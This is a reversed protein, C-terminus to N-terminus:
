SLLQQLRKQQSRTLSRRTKAIDLAVKSAERYLRGEGRGRRRLASLHAAITAADGRVVPGTLAQEPGSREAERIASSALQLLSRRLQASSKRRLLRLAMAVQLVAFNSAFVCAAHYLIKEEKPLIVLEGKFASVIRRSIPLAKRPGEFAFVLGDFRRLDERTCARRPFTSIPHLSFALDGRRVLPALVDSTHLGSTHFVARQRLPAPAEAAILRAIPAIERDPTAIILVDVDPLIARLDTSAHRCRVRRALSRASALRRSVVSVVSHGRRHLMCALTAGVRGAGIVGIRLKTQRRPV